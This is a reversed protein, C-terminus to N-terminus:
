KNFNKYPKKRNIIKETLKKSGEFANAIVKNEKEVKRGMKIKEICVRLNKLENLNSPDILDYCKNHSDQSFVSNKQVVGLFFISYFLFFSFFKLCVKIRVTTNHM